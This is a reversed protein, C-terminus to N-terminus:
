VELLQTSLSISMIAIGIVLATEGEVLVIRQKSDASESQAQLSCVLMVSLVLALSMIAHVPRGLLKPSRLWENRKKSDLGTM